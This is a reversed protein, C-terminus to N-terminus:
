LPFGILKSSGIFWNVSSTSLSCSIADESSLCVEHLLHGANNWQQLGTESAIIVSSRSARVISIPLDVFVTRDQAFVHRSQSYTWLRLIGDSSTTWFSPRSFPRPTASLFSSTGSISSERVLGFAPCQSISFFIINRDSGVALYRDALNLVFSIRLIDEVTVSAVQEMSPLQFCSLTNNRTAICLYGGLVIAGPGFAGHEPHLPSAVAKKKKALTWVGKSSVWLMGQSWSMLSGAGCAKHPLSYPHEECKCTAPDVTVIKGDSQSLWLQSTLPDLAASQYATAIPSLKIIQEKPPDPSGSRSPGKSKHRRSRCPLSPMGSTGLLEVTEAELPLESSSASTRSVRKINSISPHASSNSSSRPLTGRTSPGGLSSSTKVKGRKLPGYTRCIHSDEGLIEREAEALMDLLHTTTPRRFPDTV